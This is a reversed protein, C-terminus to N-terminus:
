RSFRGTGVCLNSNLSHIYGALDSTMRALMGKNNTTGSTQSQNWAYSSNPENWIEIFRVCGDDGHQHL